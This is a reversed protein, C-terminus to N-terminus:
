SNSDVTFHSSSTFCTAGLVEWTPQSSVIRRVASIAPKAKAPPIPIPPAHCLKKVRLRLQHPVRWEDGLVERAEDALLADEHLDLVRRRTANWDLLLPRLGVM